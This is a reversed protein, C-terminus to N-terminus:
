EDDGIVQDHRAVVGAGIVPAGTEDERLRVTIADLSAIERRRERLWVNSEPMPQGHKESFAGQRIEVIQLTRRKQADHEPLHTADTAFHGCTLCANGRDCTQAPSLLCLGNPLIRDARDPSMQTIDLADRANLALSNGFAGVRKAQLFQEEATNALTQAYHMTMEPSRHGLYRQVVHIAVGSNLLDTARTHRLRHTQGYRLANGGTDKLEVLDDLRRLAAQQSPYPRPRLGRHNHRPALFLYTPTIGDDCRARAWEQQQQVVRVAALDVLITADVGDVKTQQYRLRAVMADEAAEEYPVLPTLCDYDIMLIESVRRGTMAQLLWARAAQPDGLGPFTRPGSGPADVTVHETTPTRLVDLHAIMRGLDMPAIPDGRTSGTTATPQRRRPLPTWLMLHRETLGAWASNGTATALLDQNDHAWTYLGQVHTRVAAVQNDGLPKRGTGRPTRLWGLYDNFLSRVVAPQDAIAPDTAGQQELWPDFYTALNRCRVVATTWRYTEDTLAYRLWHRVGERLWPTTILGLNVPQHGQPEHPRRPIRDDIRLDWRDHAWWPDPSCRVSVLLYAHQAISTLNRQNGASPMRDNRHLFARLAERVVIEPAFDALSESRRGTLRAREAVLNSIATAWWRLMSPEVKRLGEAWCTWLWWGTEQGLQPPGAPRFDFARGAEYNSNQTFLERFPEADIVWPGHWQPPVQAWQYQWAEKSARGQVHHDPNGTNM